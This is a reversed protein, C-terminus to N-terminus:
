RTFVRGYWPYGSSLPHVALRSYTAAEQGAGEAERRGGERSGRGERGGEERGGETRETRGMSIFQVVVQYFGQWVM